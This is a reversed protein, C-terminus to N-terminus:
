KKMTKVLLKNFQSVNARHLIILKNDIMERSSKGFPTLSKNGFIDKDNFRLNFDRSLTDRAQFAKEASLFKVIDCKTFVNNKDGFFIKDGNRRNIFVGKSRNFKNLETIDLVEKEKYNIKDQKSIVIDRHIDRNLNINENRVEKLDDKIKRFLSNEIRITKKFSQSLEKNRQTVCTTSNEFVTTDNNKRSSLCILKKDSKYNRSKGLNINEKILKRLSQQCEQIVSTRGDNVHIKHSPSKIIKPDLKKPEGCYKNKLNKNLIKRKKYGDQIKEKELIKSFDFSVELNKFNEKYTNKLDDYIKNVKMVSKEINQYVQESSKFLKKNKLSEYQEYFNIRLIDYEFKDCYTNRSKNKYLM